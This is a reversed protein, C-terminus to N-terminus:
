CDQYFTVINKLEHPSNILLDETANSNGFGWEVFITRIRAQKGAVIDVHSDGIMIAKCSQEYNYDYNNLIFNIMEPHPKPDKVKCAGIINDFFHDIKLHGLMRLAYKTPANTAVSMNFGDTKLLELSEKIGNYLHSTKICEHFYHKEFNERDITCYEETEYLIKSLESRKSNIAASVFSEALPPMSKSKRVYNISSTIDKSSNILTGDMDFIIIKNM